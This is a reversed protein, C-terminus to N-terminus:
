FFFTNTSFSSYTLYVINNRVRAYETHVDSLHQKFKQCENPLECEPYQGMFNSMSMELKGHKTQMMIDDTGTVAGYAENGHEKLCKNDFTAFKCTPGVKDDWDTFDCFFSVINDVCRPLSFFFIIPTYLISLIEMLFINIRSQLLQAFEDRVELTHARDIWTDPFYHIFVQMKHM